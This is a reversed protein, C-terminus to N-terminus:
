SQRSALGRENQEASEQIGLWTCRHSLVLEEEWEEFAQQLELVSFDKLGWWERDPALQRLVASLATEPHLALHDSSECHGDPLTTVASRLQESVLHIISSWCLRPRLHGGFGAALSTDM